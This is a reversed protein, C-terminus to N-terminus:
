RRRGKAPRKTKAPGRKQATAVTRKRKSSAHRRPRQAQGGDRLLGVTGALLAGAILPIVKRM